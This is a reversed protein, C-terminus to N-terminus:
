SQTLGCKGKLVNTWTLTGYQVLKNSGIFHNRSSVFRQVEQLQLMYIQESLNGQLFATVIDMQDLNFEMALAQLYRINTYRVVPSYM